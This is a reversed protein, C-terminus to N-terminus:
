LSWFSGESSFSQQSVSLCDLWSSPEASQWHPGDDSGVRNHRNSVVEHTAETGYGYDHLKYLIGDVFQLRGALQNQELWRKGSDYTLMKKFKSTYDGEEFAIHRGTYDCRLDGDFFECNPDNEFRERNMDDFDTMPTDRLLRDPLKAHGGVFEYSSEPVELLDRLRSVWWVDGWKTDKLIKQAAETSYPIALPWWQDYQDNAIPNTVDMMRVLIAGIQGSSKVQKDLAKMDRHEECRQQLYGIPAMVVSKLRYKDASVRNKHDPHLECWITFSTQNIREPHHAVDMAQMLAQQLIGSKNRYWSAFQERQYAKVKDDENDPEEDEDDIDEDEDDAEEDEGGVQRRSSMVVRATAYIMKFLKIVELNEFWGGPLNASVTAKELQARIGEVQVNTFPADPERLFSIKTPILNTHLARKKMRKRANEDKDDETDRMRKKMNDNKEAGKKLKRALKKAAATANPCNLIHPVMSERKGTVVGKMSDNKEGKKKMENDEHRMDAMVTTVWPDTKRFQLMGDEELQVSARKVICWRCFAEYHSGNQKEGEIFHTWIESKSRPM